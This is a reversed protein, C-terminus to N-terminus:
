KKKIAVISFITYNTPRNSKLFFESFLIDKEECRVNDGVLHDV